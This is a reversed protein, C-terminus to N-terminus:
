NIVMLVLLFTMMVKHNGIVPYGAMVRMCPLSLSGHSRVAKM